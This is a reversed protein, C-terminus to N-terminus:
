GVDACKFPSINYLDNVIVVIQSVIRIEDCVMQLWRDM